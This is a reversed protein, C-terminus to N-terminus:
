VKRQHQEDLRPKWELRVDPEHEENRSGDTRAVEIFGHREYFRGAPTNVQFTWLGLGTPRRSKAHAVLLDGVGRGRWQPDLYLQDIDTDDLAMIGVVSDDATAVWTELTGIVVRRIWTRVQDDTHVLRVAPLAAAFSRLWVQAVTFADAAEARRLVLQPQTVCRAHCITTRPRLGSM